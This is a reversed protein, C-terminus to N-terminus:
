YLNKNLSARLVLTQGNRMVKPNGGPEGAVEDRSDLKSRVDWGLNRAVSQRLVADRINRHSGSLQGTM